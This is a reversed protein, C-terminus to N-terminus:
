EKNKAKSSKNEEWITVNSIHIAVLINKLQSKKKMEPSKDYVKRSAKTLYIKEKKPGLRHIKDILGRFGGAIVKVLVGARLKAM